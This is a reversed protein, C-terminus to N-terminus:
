GLFNLGDIEKRWVGLLLIEAGEWLPFPPVLMIGM